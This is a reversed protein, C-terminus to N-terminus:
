RVEFFYRGVISYGGGGSWDLFLRVEYKGIPLGKFTRTGQTVGKSYFYEKFATNVSGKKVITIWDDKNGPLGAFM